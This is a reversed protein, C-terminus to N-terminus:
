HSEKMQWARNEIEEIFRLPSFSGDYHYDVPAKDKVWDWDIEEVRRFVKMYEPNYFTFNKINENNTLLKKNYVVAEFARLTFGIQGPRVIELICNAQLTSELVESYLRAEKISCVSVRDDEYHQNEELQVLDMRCDLEKERLISNITESRDKDVGCFYLDIQNGTNVNMASYPTQWFAFGYKEADSKDFTYIFDFVGKERLYNAYVSVGRETTDLYYLVFLADYKQKLYNLSAAPLRIEAFISNLFLVVPRRGENRCAKLYKELVTDKLLLRQTYKGILAQVKRRSLFEKIRNFPMESKCELKGQELAEAFIQQELFIARTNNHQLLLVAAQMRLKGDTHTNTLCGLADSM